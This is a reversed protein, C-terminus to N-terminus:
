KDKRPQAPVPDGAPTLRVEGAHNTTTTAAEQAKRRADEEARRQRVGSLASPQQKKQEVAVLQQKRREEAACIAPKAREVCKGSPSCHVIPGPKLCREAYYRSIRRKKIPDHTGNNHGQPGRISQGGFEVNANGKKAPKYLDGNQALVTQSTVSLCSLIVLPFFIKFSFRPATKM